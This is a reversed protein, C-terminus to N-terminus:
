IFLLLKVPVTQDWYALLKGGKFKFLYMECLRKKLYTIKKLKKIVLGNNHRINIKAEDKTLAIKVSVQKDKYAKEYYENFKNFRCNIRSGRLLIVTKKESFFM